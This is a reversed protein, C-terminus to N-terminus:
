KQKLSATSVPHRDPDFTPPDQASPMNDNDWVKPPLSKLQEDSPTVDITTGPYIVIVRPKPVVFRAKVAVNPAASPSTVIPAPAPAAATARHTHWYGVGLVAVTILLAATVFENLEFSVQLGKM